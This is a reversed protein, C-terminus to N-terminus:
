ELIINKIHNSNKEKPSLLYKISYFLTLLTTVTIAAVIVWDWNSQPGTGHTIGRLFKPQQKECLPCASSTFALVTIFSITFFIRLQHATHKQTQM